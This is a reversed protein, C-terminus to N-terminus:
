KKEPKKALGGELKTWLEKKDDQAMQFAAEIGGDFLASVYRCYQPGLFRYNMPIPASDAGIWMLRGDKELIVHDVIQELLVREISVIGNYKLSPGALAVNDRPDVLKNYERLPLTKRGKAKEQELLCRAVFDEDPYLKTKDVKVQLVVPKADGICAGVAFYVPYATTLYVLDSKSEVEGEWNSRAGTENRPLIGQELIQPLRDSSTGHFLTLKTKM